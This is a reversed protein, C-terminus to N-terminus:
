EDDTKLRAAHADIRDVSDRDILFGDDGTWTVDDIDVDSDPRVQATEEAVGIITGVRTEEDDLVQKGRDTPRFTRKM